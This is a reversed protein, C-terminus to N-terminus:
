IIKRILKVVPETERKGESRAEWSAAAEIEYHPVVVKRKEKKTQRNERKKDGTGGRRQESARDFSRPRNARISTEKAEKGGESRAKV